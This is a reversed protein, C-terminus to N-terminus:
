ARESKKFFFLYSTWAVLNGIIVPPLVYLNLAQLLLSGALADGGSTTKIAVLLVLYYVALLSFAYPVLKKVRFLCMLLCCLVSAVLSILAPPGWVELFNGTQAPVSRAVLDASLIYALAFVMVLVASFAFAQMLLISGKSKGNAEMSQVKKAM